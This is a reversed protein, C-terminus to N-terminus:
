LGPARFRLGKFRLSEVRLRLSAYRLCAVRSTFRALGLEWVKLGLGEVSGPPNTSETLLKIAPTVPSPTMQLNIPAIRVSVLDRQDELDLGWVRIGM